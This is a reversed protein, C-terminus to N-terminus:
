VLFDHLLLSYTIRAYKYIYIYGFVFVFHIVIIADDHKRKILDIKFFAIIIIVIVVIIFAFPYLLQHNQVYKYCGMTIIVFRETSSKTECTNFNRFLKQSIM